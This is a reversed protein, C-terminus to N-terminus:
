EGGSIVRLSTSNTGGFQNFLAPYNSGVYEVGITVSGNTLNYVGPGIDGLRMFGATVTSFDGQSFTGGISFAGTGSGFYGFPDNNIQLASSLMIIASNSGVVLRGSY